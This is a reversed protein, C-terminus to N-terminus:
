LKRTELLICQKLPTAKSLVLKQVFTHFGVITILAVGAKCELVLESIVLFARHTSM